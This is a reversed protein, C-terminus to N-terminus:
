RKYWAADMYACAHLYLDSVNGYGKMETIQEDISNTVSEQGSTILLAKRTNKLTIHQMEILKIAQLSVMSVTTEAINHLSSCSRSMGAWKEAYRTLAEHISTGMMIGNLCMGAKLCGKDSWDSAAQLPVTYVIRDVGPIGM